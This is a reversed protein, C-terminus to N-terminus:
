KRPLKQRPRARCAQRNVASRSGGAGQPSRVGRSARIDYNGNISFGINYYNRGVPWATGDAPLYVQAKSINANGERMLQPLDAFKRGYALLSFDDGFEQLPIRENSNKGAINFQKEGSYAFNQKAYKSGSADWVIGEPHLYAVLLDGKREFAMSLWEGYSSMMDNAVAKLSGSLKGELSDCILSFAESPSAHREYGAQRLRALSADYTPLAKKAGNRPTKPEWELSGYSAPLIIRPADPAPKPKPVIPKIVIDEAKIGYDIEVDDDLFPNRNM